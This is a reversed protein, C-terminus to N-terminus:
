YATSRAPVSTGFALKCEVTRAGDFLNGEIVICGTARWRTVAEIRRMCRPFNQTEQSPRAWRAGGAPPERDPRRHPLEVCVPRRDPVAVACCWRWAVSLHVIWGFSSQKKIRRYQGDRPGRLQMEKRVNACTGFWSPRSWVAHHHHGLGIGRGLGPRRFLQGFM